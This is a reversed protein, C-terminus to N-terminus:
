QNGKTEQHNEMTDQLNVRTEKHNGIIECQNGWPTWQYGSTEGQHRFDSLM